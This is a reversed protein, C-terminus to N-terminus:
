EKEYAGIDVTGQIRTNGALDYDLAANIAAKAAASLGTPFVSTDDADAPYYSNNGQNIAPSGSNLRYNGGTTPAAPISTTIFLPNSNMGEVISFSM